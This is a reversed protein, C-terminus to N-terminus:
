RMAIMLIMLCQLSEGQLELEPARIRIKKTEIPKMFGKMEEVIIEVRDDPLLGIMEVAQEQVISM